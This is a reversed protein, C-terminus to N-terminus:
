LFVEAMDLVSQSLSLTFPSIVLQLLIFGCCIDVITAVVYSRVKLTMKRNECKSQLVWLLSDLFNYVQLGTSTFSLVPSVASLCKLCFSVLAVFKNLVFHNVAWSKNGDYSENTNVLIQKLFIFHDVYTTEINKCDNNLLESLKFSNLEYLICIVHSAKSLNISIGSSVLKKLILENNELAISLWNEADKVSEITQYNGAKFFCGLIEKRNSSSILDRDTKLDIIYFTKVKIQERVVGCLIGNTKSYLFTPIFIIITNM